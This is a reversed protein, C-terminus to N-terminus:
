AVSVAMVGVAMVAEALDEEAMLMVEAATVAEVVDEETGARAPTVAEAAANALGAVLAMAM